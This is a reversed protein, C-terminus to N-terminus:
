QQKGHSFVAITNFVLALVLTLKFNWAVDSFSIGKLLVSCMVQVFHVIPNAITLYELWQPMSEILTLLGSM